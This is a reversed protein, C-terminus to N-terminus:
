VAVVPSSETHPQNEGVLNRNRSETMTQDWAAERLGAAVEREFGEHCFDAAPFIRSGAARRRGSHVACLQAAQNLYNELQRRRVGGAASCL